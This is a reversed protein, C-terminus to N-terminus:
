KGIARYVYPIVDAVDLVVKEGDVAIGFRHDDTRWIKIEQGAPTVARLWQRSGDVVEFTPMPALCAKCAFYTQDAGQRIARRALLGPDEPPKPPRKTVPFVAKRAPSRSM